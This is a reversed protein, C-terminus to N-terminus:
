INEFDVGKKLDVEETDEGNYEDYRILTVINEDEDIILEYGYLITGDENAKLPM